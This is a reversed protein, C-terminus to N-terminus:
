EFARVSTSCQSPVAQRTTFLGVEDLVPVTVVPGLDDSGVLRVGGVQELGYRGAGRPVGPGDARVGRVTPERARSEAHVPVAAVPAEASGRSEDM